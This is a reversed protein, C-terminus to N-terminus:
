TNVSCKAAKLMILSLGSIAVTLILALAFCKGISGMSDELLGIEIFSKDILRIWYVTQICNINLQLLM